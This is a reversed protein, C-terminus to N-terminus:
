YCLSQSCCSVVFSADCSTRHESPPFLMNFIRRGARKTQRREQPRFRRRELSEPGARRPSTVSSRGLVQCTALIEYCCLKPTSRSRARRWDASCSQWSSCRSSEGFKCVEATSVLERDPDCRRSFVAPVGYTNHRTRLNNLPLLPRHASPRCWGASPSESCRRIRIPRDLTPWINPFGERECWFSM